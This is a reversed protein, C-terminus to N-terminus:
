TSGSLNTEPLNANALITERLNAAPISIIPQPGNILNAEWLFRLITGKRNPDLSRVATYTRADAVARLEYGSKSSALHYILLLDSMRDLYTDLTTQYQQDQAARSNAMQQENFQIFSFLISATIAAAGILQIFLSIWDWLTKGSLGTWKPLKNHIGALREKVLKKQAPSAM